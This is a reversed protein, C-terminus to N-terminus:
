RVGPDQEGLLDQAEAQYSRPATIGFHRYASLTAM